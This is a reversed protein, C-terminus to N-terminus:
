EEEQMEIDESYDESISIAGFIDIFIPGRYSPNHLFFDNINPQLSEGIAARYQRGGFPSSLGKSNLFNIIFGPDVQHVNLEFEALYEQISLV